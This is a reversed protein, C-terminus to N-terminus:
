TSKSAGLSGAESGAGSEDENGAAEVFGKLRVGSSIWWYLVAPRPRSWSSGEFDMDSKGWRPRGEEKWEGSDLFYWMQPYLM